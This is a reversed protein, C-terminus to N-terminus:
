EDVTHYNLQAMSDGCIDEIRKLNIVGFFDMWGVSRDGPPQFPHDLYDKIDQREALQLEGALRKIEGAKDRLFDEFRVPYFQKKNELLIRAACDWRIALTEIFDGGKRGVPEGEFVRRWGTTMNRQQMTTLREQRGTANIRNLISRINDRPDRYVFVFDAEGFMRALESYIFTLNPEKIIPKSFDLKNRRVFESLSMERRRVLEIGPHEFERKIDMTLPLGTLKALLGAIPSTGSKQNGLIFIPRPHVESRLSLLGTKADQYILRIPRILSRKRKMERKYYGFHGARNFFFTRTVGKQPATLILRATACESSRPSM